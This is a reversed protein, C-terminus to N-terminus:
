QLICTVSCVLTQGSDPILEYNMTLISDTLLGSGSITDNMIVQKFIDFTSGAVTANVTQGLDALNYILISQTNVTDLEITISYSYNGLNCSETASYMGAFEAM